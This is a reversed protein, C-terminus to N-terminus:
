SRRNTNTSCREGEFKNQRFLSIFVPQDQRCEEFSVIDAESPSDSADDAVFHWQRTGRWQDSSPEEDECEVSVLCTALGGAFCDCITNIMGAKHVILRLSEHVCHNFTKAALRCDKPIHLRNSMFGCSMCMHVM